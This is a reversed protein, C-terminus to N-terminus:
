GVASLRFGVFEKGGSGIGADLSANRDVTDVTAFPTCSSDPSTLAHIHRICSQLAKMLNPQGGCREARPEWGLM